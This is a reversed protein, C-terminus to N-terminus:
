KSKLIKTLLRLYNLSYKHEFITHFWELATIAGRVRDNRVKDVDPHKLIDFCDFNAMLHLPTNGYENIVKSIDKHKLLKLRDEKSRCVMALWHLPTTFYESSKENGCESIIAIREDNLISIDGKKALEFLENNSLNFLM